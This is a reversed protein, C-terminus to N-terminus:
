SEQSKRQDIMCSAHSDYFSINSYSEGFNDHQSLHQLTTHILQLMTHFSLSHKHKGQQGFLQSFVVNQSM